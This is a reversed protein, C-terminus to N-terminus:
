PRGRQRHSVIQIEPVRIPRFIEPLQSFGDLSQGFRAPAEIRGDDAPVYAEVVFAWGAADIRRRRNAHDAQDFFLLPNRSLTKLQLIIQDPQDATESILHASRMVELRDVSQFGPNRGM